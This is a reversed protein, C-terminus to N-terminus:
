IKIIIQQERERERETQRDRRERERDRVIKVISFLYGTCIGFSDREREM